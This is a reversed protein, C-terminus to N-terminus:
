GGGIFNVIEIRDGEMIATGSYESAPIIALNQEFALKRPDLQLEALLDAVMLQRTFNHEEGNITIKV